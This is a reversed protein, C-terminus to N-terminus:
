LGKIHEVIEELSTNAKVFYAQAGLNKAMEEDENHGLNTLVIIPVDMELKGKVEALFALGDMKPMIIDLLIVDFKDQDLLTLAHQGNSAHSTEFGDAQLKKELTSALVKEDEVILVKKAM